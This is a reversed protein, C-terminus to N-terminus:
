TGSRLLVARNIMDEVLQTDFGQSKLRKSIAVWARDGLGPRMTDFMEMIYADAIQQDLVTIPSPQTVTDETAVTNNAQKQTIEDLAALMTNISNITQQGMSAASEYENKGCDQRSVIEALQQAERAIKVRLRKMTYRGAGGLILVESDDMPHDNDLKYIVGEGEGVTSRELMKNDMAVHASFTSLLDNLKSQLEQGNPLLRCLTSLANIYGTIAPGIKSQVDLDVRSTQDDIAPNRLSILKM